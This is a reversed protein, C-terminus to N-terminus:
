GYSCISVPTAGNPSVYCTGALTAMEVGKRPTKGGDPGGIRAALPLAVGSRPVRDVHNSWRGGPWQEGAERGVGGDTPVPPTLNHASGEGSAVAQYRCGFQSLGFPARDRRDAREKTHCWVPRDRRCFGDTSSLIGRAKATPTDLGQVPAEHSHKEGRDVLGEVAGAAQRQRRFSSSADPYRERGSRGAAAFAGRVQGLRPTRHGPLLVLSTYPTGPVGPSPGFKPRHRANAASKEISAHPLAISRIMIGGANHHAYGPSAILGRTSMCGWARWTRGCGAIEPLLRGSAPSRGRQRPARSPRARRTGRARTGM